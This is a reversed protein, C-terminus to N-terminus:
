FPTIDGKENTAEIMVLVKGAKYVQLIIYM